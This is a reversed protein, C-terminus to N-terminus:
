PEAAARALQLMLEQNMRQQAATDGGQSRLYLDRTAPSWGEPLNQLDVDMIPQAGMIQGTVGAMGGITQGVMDLLQRQRQGRYAIRSEEEQRAQDIEGKLEAIQRNAEAINAQEITAGARRAQEAVQRREERKARVQQAASTGGMSAMAAEENLRQERSLSLVPDMQSRLLADREEESLGFDGEALRQRMEEQRQQVDKLRKRNEVDQLTPIAAAGLQALQAGGSVLAAQEIQQRQRAKILNPDGVEMERRPGVIGAFGTRAMTTPPGGDVAPITSPYVVQTAGPAAAPQMYGQLFQAQEQATMLGLDNDNVYSHGTAGPYRVYPLTSM